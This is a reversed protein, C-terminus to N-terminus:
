GGSVVMSETPELRYLQGKFQVESAKTRLNCIATYNKETHHFHILYIDKSPNDVSKIQSDKWQAISEWESWQEPSYDGVYDSTFLLNGLLTNILLISYQQDPTLKNLQDRLIFVDPDNHFVQGNLQWRGLVTRLAVITSVRERNNLWKLFRHEWELHIDAGIRCYDVLGFASGLPVGCALIWKDGCQERLFQLADNMVQGRTKGVPPVLCVAYLFDIKLLDFDWKHLMTFIVGTLYDQVGKNYFDLAYFWGNWLPSYGVKLPQGKKDKLLWEPYRQFISSQKECVFPAIWLGAKYGKDHIQEAIPAMGNPFEDKINEWDGVKTQYGDDIRIIDIPANKSAFAELNKLIIAETIDTYYHYWSTWGVLSPASPKKVDMLQFYNQFPPPPTGTSIYLDLLPFSHSLQLNRCDKHINVQQNTSDYQIVTFATKEDLSGIFAINQHRRIYGYTWSHLHGKGRKVSDIYEDGFYKLWPRAMRKLRPISESPLFERSESWSQYGNCFLRDTSQFNFQFQLVLDQLIINQKPHVTLQIRQYNAQTEIKYDVYLEEYFSMKNPTLEVNTQDYFLTAQQLNLQMTEIQSFYVSKKPFKPLLWALNVM